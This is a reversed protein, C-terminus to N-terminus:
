NKPGRDIENMEMGSKFFFAKIYIKEIQSYIARGNKRIEISGNRV